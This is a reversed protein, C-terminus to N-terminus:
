NTPATLNVAKGVTENWIEACKAGCRKAWRPVVTERMIRLREKEDEATPTVYQITVKKGLLCEKGTNCNVGEATTRVSVRTFSEKEMELFQEELFKQTAANLKNWVNLNVAIYNPAWGLSVGLIHPAVEPFNAINGNFSGSVACDAVGRQLAPVVEAFPISVSTAGVGETFDILTKNYVRIKKGRLDALGKTPARCWIVQPHNVQLGLLKANWNDAMLRALVPKYAACAKYVEDLTSTLGALDCGEFEARDGSLYNIGNSAWELVGSKMLRLVESGNLGITNFPQLDVKIKGASKETLKEFFPKELLSSNAELNSQGIFKIVLEQIQASASIPQFAILAAVFAILSFKSRM